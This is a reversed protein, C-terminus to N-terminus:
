FSLVLVINDVWNVNSEFIVLARQSVSIKHAEFQLRLDSLKKPM